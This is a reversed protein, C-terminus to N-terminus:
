DGALAGTPVPGLTMILDYLALAEDSRGERCASRALQRAVAAGYLGRAAVDQVAGHAEITTTAQLDRQACSAAIPGVEDALVLGPVFSLGIALVVFSSLKSVKNGGAYVAVEFRAHV